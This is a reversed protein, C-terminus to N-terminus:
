DAPLIFTPAGDEAHRHNALATVVRNTQAVENSLQDVRRILLVLLPVIAALLAVGVAIIAITQTDMPTRVWLLLVDSVQVRQPAQGVRNQGCRSCWPANPDDGGHQGGAPAAPAAAAAARLKRRPRRHPLSFAAGATAAPTIRNTM